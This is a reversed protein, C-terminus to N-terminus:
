ENYFVSCPETQIMNWRHKLNLEESEVTNREPVTPYILIQVTQTLPLPINSVPIFELIFEYFLQFSKELKITFMPVASINQFNWRFLLKLNFLFYEDILNCVCVCVYM